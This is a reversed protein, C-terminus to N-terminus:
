PMALLTGAQTKRECEPLRQLVQQVPLVQAGPHYQLPAVPGQLTLQRKIEAMGADAQAKPTSGRMMGSVNLDEVVLNQYKNVLQSTLKIDPREERLGNIRRNLRDIRRQAEWWGRGYPIRRAQTRQWRQLRRQALYYAKPNEWTQCESDTALPNIGTDM